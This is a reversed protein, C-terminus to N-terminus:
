FFIVPHPLSSLQLATNFSEQLPLICGMAFILKYGKASLIYQMELLIVFANSDSSITAMSTYGYVKATM